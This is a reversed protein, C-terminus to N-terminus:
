EWNGSCTGCKFLFWKFSTSLDVCTTYYEASCSDADLDMSQIQSVATVLQFCASKYQEHPFFVETRRLFEQFYFETTKNHLLDFTLSGQLIKQWSASFHWDNWVATVKSKLTSQLLSRGPTWCTCQTMHTVKPKITRLLQYGPECFEAMWRPRRSFFFSNM